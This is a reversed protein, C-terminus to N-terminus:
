AGTSSSKPVYSFIKANCLTSYGYTQWHHWWYKLSLNDGNEFSKLKQLDDTVKFFSKDCLLALIPQGMFDDVEIKDVKTEARNLNFANAFKDTDMIASMTSDIILVQQEVPTATILKPEGEKPTYNNNKSSPIVFNKSNVRIARVLNNIIAEDRATVADGETYIEEIQVHKNVFATAILNKMMLFEDYNDGSYLSMVIGNLFQEFAYPSTFAQQLMEATITVPYKDQRQTNFYNVKVDAKVVKLLDQSDFTYTQGRSPNIYLEQIGKGYPVGATKLKALPNQITATKILTMGIRNLLMDLFANMQTDYELLSKGIDKLNEATAVPIRAQYDAGGNARITNLIKVVNIM